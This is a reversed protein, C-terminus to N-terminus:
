ETIPARNGGNRESRLLSHGPWPRAGCGKKARQEIDSASYLLRDGPYEGQLLLRLRKIVLAQPFQHSLIEAGLISASQEM